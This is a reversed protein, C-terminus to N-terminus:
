LVAATTGSNRAGYYSFADDGPSMPPHAPNQRCEMIRTLRREFRSSLEKLQDAMMKKWAGTEEAKRARKGAEGWLGMETNWRQLSQLEAEMLERMRQEYGDKDSLQSQLKTMKQDYKQKWKDSKEKARAEILQQMKNGYDLKEQTLAEIQANLRSTDDRSKVTVEEKLQQMHQDRHKVMKQLGKCQGMVEALQKGKADLDTQLLKNVNDLQSCKALTARQETTLRQLQRMESEMERSQKEATALRLFLSEKEQESAHTKDCADALDCNKQKLAEVEVALATNVKTMQANVRRCEDVTRESDERLTRMRVLEGAQERLAAAESVSKQCKDEVESMVRLHETQKNNVERMQELEERLATLQEDRAQDHELRTQLLQQYKVVEERGDEVQRSLRRQVDSWQEEARQKDRELQRRQTLFDNRIEVEADEKALLQQKLLTVQRALQASETEVQALQSKVLSYRESSQQQNLEIDRYKQEWEKTELRYLRFRGVEEELRAQVDQSELTRAHLEHKQSDCLDRLSQSEDRAGYTNEHLRQNEETAEALRDEASHRLEREEDRETLLTMLASRVIVLLKDDSERFIQSFMDAGEEGEMGDMRELASKFLARTGGGVSDDASLLAELLEPPVEAHREGGGGGRIEDGASMRPPASTNPSGPQYTSSKAVPATEIASPLPSRGPTAQPPLLSNPPPSLETIATPAAPPALFRLTSPPPPSPLCRHHFPSSPIPNNFASSTAFLMPPPAHLSSLSSSSYLPPPPPGAAATPTPPSSLMLSSPPVRPLQQM